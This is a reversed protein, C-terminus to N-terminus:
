RRAQYAERCLAHDKYIAGLDCFDAVETIPVADAVNWKGPRVGTAALRGLYASRCIASDHELIMSDCMEAALVSPVWNADGAHQEDTRLVARGVEVSPVTERRSGLNVVPLEGSRYAVWLGILIGAALGGASAILIARYATPAHKWRLRAYLALAVAILLAVLAAVDLYDL